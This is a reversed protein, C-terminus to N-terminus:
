LIKDRYKHRSMCQDQHFGLRNENLFFLENWIQITWFMMLYETLIAAGKDVTKADKFTM